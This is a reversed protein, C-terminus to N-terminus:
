ASIGCRGSKRPAAGPALLNALAGPSLEWIMGYAAPSITALSPYLVVAGQLRHSTIRGTVVVALLLTEAIVKAIPLGKAAPRVALFVACLELVLLVM